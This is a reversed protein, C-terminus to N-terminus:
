NSAFRTGFVTKVAEVWETRTNEDVISPKARVADAGAFPGGLSPADYVAIVKLLPQDARLAAILSDTAPIAVNVIVLDVTVQLEALLKLADAVTRAPLAEYGAQDLAHGLWFAFGLDSDVLLVTKV